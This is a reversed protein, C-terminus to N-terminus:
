SAPAPAVVDADHQAAIHNAARFAIASSKTLGGVYAAVDGGELGGTACGAAYLGPIPADERNLVRGFGDIVMGGMTYTIGACLRVAYFPPQQILHPRYRTSTRPPDLRGARGAAVADNYQRVTNALAAEPLGARRAVGALDRAEIITGGGSMLLPNAPSIFERGPGNWIAEDFVVLASLPDHLAAIRNTIYVGGLGEDLFRQGAGDIVIGATCLFDMIPFPSLEDNQMADQCLVHGYIREMGVLKAGVARAMLLADGNGTAGGRQKLKEPASTVFERLLQRNAQFGGDCLVVNKGRIIGAEGRRDVEVGACRGDAMRLRVARTGLLLKGGLEHLAHKLTRLLVDGGRGQWYTTGKLLIPPALTHQRHVEHGVKIFKIGKTKLWRVANGIDAAVARALDARAFSGTRSNIAELLVDPGENVDHFAVHFAGGTMRSNCPYADQEGQELVAVRSGLEALRVAAVMGAIGGGVIVADFLDPRDM